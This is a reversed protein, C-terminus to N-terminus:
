IVVGRNKAFNCLSYVIAGFGAADQGVAGSYLVTLGVRDTITLCTLHPLEERQSAPLGIDLMTAVVL